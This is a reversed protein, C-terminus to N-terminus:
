CSESGRCFEQLKLVAKSHEAFTDSFITEGTELNVAVFYLWSGKAPNLAAEITKEGPSGIPGPPLGDNQYTNYESKNAREAETTFVDGERKSVFSVTSDLQLKMGAKIRNYLVRAVKAYDEDQKAEYELLSAVTLIQEANLGLAQARTRIDLDKEVAITKAVMQKLLDTATTGPEVMYTAPYLYGEPNNKAAEPLGLAEPKKLAATLDDQKIESGAVIASVIQGVRAGEPVTVKGEVRNGKDALERLAWEASIKKRLSYFGPQITQARADKLSLQYFAEASKVVGAKKLANAIVQGNAGPTIEVVVKGTGRGTYDAPGNFWTSAKGWAKYGGFALVFVILLVLLRKGWPGEKKKRTARRRGPQPPKSGGTVLDLGNDTM